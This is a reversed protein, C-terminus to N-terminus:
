DSSTILKTSSFPKGPILSGNRLKEEFITELSTQLEKTREMMRKKDLLGNKKRIESGLFINDYVTLDNVLNFEQPIISIGLKKAALPDEIVVAKEEFVIVGSTPTYIGSLIKM